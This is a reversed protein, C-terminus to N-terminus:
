IFIPWVFPVVATSNGFISKFASGVPGKADLQYLHSTEHVALTLVWSSEAMQELSAAGSPFWVSKLNPIVTAYANAIQQAPSTLILDQREDLKWAFSQDYSNRVAQMYAAIQPLVERATPDYVFLIQPSQLRYYPGDGPQVVSANSLNVN